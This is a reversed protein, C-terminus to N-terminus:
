RLWDWMEVKLKRFRRRLLVGVVVQVHAYTHLSLGKSHHVASRCHSSCSRLVSWQPSVSQWWLLKPTMSAPLWAWWTHLLWRSSQSYFVCFCRLMKDHHIIRVQMNHPRLLPGTIGVLALLNWPHKRSFNRFCSLVILVALNVFFSLYMMWPNAQVFKKANESLTCVAVAVFTVLLELTLIMFVQEFLPNPLILVCHWSPVATEGDWVCCWVYPTNTFMWPLLASCLCRQISYFM